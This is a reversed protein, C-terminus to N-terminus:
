NPSEYTFSQIDNRRVFVGHMHYNYSDRLCLRYNTKAKEWDLELDKENEKKLIIQDETGRFQIIRVSGNFYANEARRQELREQECPPKRM